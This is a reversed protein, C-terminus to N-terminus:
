GLRTALTDLEARVALVAEHPMRMANGDEDVGVPNALFARVAEIDEETFPGDDITYGPDDLVAEGAKPEQTAM